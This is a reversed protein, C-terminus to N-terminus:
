PFICHIHSGSWWLSEFSDSRILLISNGLTANSTRLSFFRWSIKKVKEAKWGRHLIISLFYGWHLGMWISFIYGLTLVFLFVPHSWTSVNLRSGKKGQLTVKVVKILTKFNVKWPSKRSDSFIGDHTSISSVSNSKGSNSKNELTSTIYQVTVENKKRKLRQGFGCSKDTQIGKMM